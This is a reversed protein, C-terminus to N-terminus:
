LAGRHDVAGSAVLRTHNSSAIYKQVPASSRLAFFM